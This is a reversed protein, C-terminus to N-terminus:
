SMMMWNLCAGPQLTKLAEAASMDRDLAVAAKPILYIHARGKELKVMQSRGAYTVEDSWGAARAADYMSAVPICIPTKTDTESIIAEAIVVSDKGKSSVTVSIFVGQGRYNEISHDSTEIGDETKTISTEFPQGLVQQFDDISYNKKISYDKKYFLDAMNLLVTSTDAVTKDGAPPSAAGDQAQCPTGLALCASIALGSFLTRIM